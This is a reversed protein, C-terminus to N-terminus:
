CIASCIVLNGKANIIAINKKRKLGSLIQIGLKPIKNKDHIDVKKDKKIWNRIWDIIAQKHKQVSFAEDISFNNNIGVNNREPSKAGTTENGSYTFDQIYKVGNGYRISKGAFKNDPLEVFILEPNLICIRQIKISKGKNLFIHDSPVLFYEAM